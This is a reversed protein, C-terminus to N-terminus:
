DIKRKLCKPFVEKKFVAKSWFDVVFQLKKIVRTHFFLLYRKTMRVSICKPFVGKKKKKKSWFDGGLPWLVALTMEWWRLEHFFIHTSIYPHCPFGNGKEPANAFWYVHYMLNLSTSSELLSMFKLPTGLQRSYSLALSDISPVRRPIEKLTYQLTKVLIM